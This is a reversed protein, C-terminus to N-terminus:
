RQAWPDRPNRQDRGPRPDRAGGPGQGAWPDPQGRRPPHDPPFGGPLPGSGPPRPGPPRRGGWADRGDRPDRNARPPGPFGTGAPGDWPGPDDRPGPAGWPDREGGPLRPRQGRDPPRGPAAGPAAAGGPRRVGPRAASMEFQGAVLLRGLLWRACAVVVVLITAACMWFFVNAIWQLFSAGLETKSTDIGRDHIAGTVVAGIFNALAPLPFVMYLAGRWIGLTAIVSGVLVLFGLLFGPESKTAVTGAVGLLTAALLVCCATRTSLRGM